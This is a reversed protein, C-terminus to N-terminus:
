SLLRGHAGSNGRGVCPTASVAYTAVSHHSFILQLEPAVEGCRVPHLSPESAAKGHIFVRAPHGGVQVFVSVLRSQCFLRQNSHDRLM